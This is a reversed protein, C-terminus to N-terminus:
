ENIPSFKKDLASEDRRRSEKVDTSKNQLLQSFFIAIASWSAFLLSFILLNQNPSKTESFDRIGAAYIFIAIVLFLFTIWFLINHWGFSGIEQKYFYLTYCVSISLPICIIAIEGKGALNILDPWSDDYILFIVATALFPLSSGLVNILTYAFSSKANNVLYLKRNIKVNNNILNVGM